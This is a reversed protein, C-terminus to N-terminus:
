KTWGGLDIIAQWQKQWDTKHAAIFDDDDYFIPSTKNLEEFSPMNKSDNSIETFVPRLTTTGYAQQAQTSILFDIFLKANDMDPANKVIAAACPTWNSGEKPYVAVLNSGDQNDVASICPDEYSVGVAYEGQMVLKYVKSSSDLVVGKIVENIFKTVYEWSKNYDGSEWKSDTAGSFVYMMSKLEEWASSSKTPNAMSVHGALKDAHDVLDQYGKVDDVTLGLEQLKETNLIFCTNGSLGYNTYYGTKNKYADTKILSENPSVYKEWLDPYQMYQAYNMGGWFVDCAPNAAEAQIRSVCNGTGDSILNVEINPYKAQFLPIITDVEGDSNPSYIVLSGKKSEDPKTDNNTNDSTGCGTLSALVMMVVLLLSVFKKM